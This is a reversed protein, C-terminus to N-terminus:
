ADLMAELNYHPYLDAHDRVWQTMDAVQEEYPKPRFSSDFNTRVLTKDLVFGEDPVIVIDEGRFYKKFLGLLDYKSISEPPVMNVLGTDGMIAVHEMARALELTTMGTWLARKFGHVTGNQGMFWNFLGIGEKNIDPGVISNRLTINKGDNLEGRAKSRDYVSEGDPVSGETYPGTNGAFVCDTSMHIIRTPIDHSIEVLFHPLDGNLYMALSENNEANANLIGIANVIVDFRGKRVLETLSVRDTADGLLTPVFETPRRSFGIVDHGREQLYRAIVHGAMGSVGLVLFRLSM